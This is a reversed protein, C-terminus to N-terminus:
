AIDSNCHKQFECWDCLRSPKKQFEQDAEINQIIGLLEKLYTKLNDRILIVANELEHEIYIFSIRIKDVEPYKLFFYVAYFILQNYDQYGEDRYKGTKWDCINLVGDIVALYDVAGRFLASKDNFSCEKLDKTLGFKLEQVAETGLYKQGLDSEIFKDAIGQYKPALKYTSKEPYKELIDHIAGGKLLATMDRPGPDIKDIRSYKYKKPCQVYTNMASFSYPAFQLEKNFM